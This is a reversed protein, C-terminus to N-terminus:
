NGTIKQYQFVMVNTKELNPITQIFDKVEIKEDNTMVYALPLIPEGNWIEESQNHWDTKIIVM